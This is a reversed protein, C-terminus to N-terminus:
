SNEVMTKALYKVLLGKPNLSVRLGLYKDTGKRTKARIYEDKFILGMGDAIRKMCSEGCAGDIYFRHENIANRVKSAKLKGDKDKCKDLNCVTLGYPIDQGKQVEDYVFTSLAKLAEPYDKTLGIIYQGLNAGHCDYGCGVQKFTEGTHSHKLRIIPYGYTDYGRSEGHSFELFCNINSYTAVKTLIENKM